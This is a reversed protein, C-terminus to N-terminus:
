RERGRPGHGPLTQITASPHRALKGLGAPSGDGSSAFGEGGTTEERWLSVWSSVPPSMAHTVGCSVTPCGYFMGTFRLPYPLVRERRPDKRGLVLRAGHRVDEM